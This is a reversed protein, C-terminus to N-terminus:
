DLLQQTQRIDTLGIVLTAFKKYVQRATIFSLRFLLPRHQQKQVTVALAAVTKIFQVINQNMPREVLGPDLFLVQWKDDDRWLQVHKTHPLHIINGPTG